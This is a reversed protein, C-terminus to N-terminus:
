PLLNTIPKPLQTRMKIQTFHEINKIREGAEFYAEKYKRMTRSNEIRKLGETNFYYWCLKIM